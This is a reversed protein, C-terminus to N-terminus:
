KFKKVVEDEVDVTGWLYSRGRFVQGSSNRSVSNSGILSFPLKSNIHADSFQFHHIKNQKLQTKIKIIIMLSRTLSLEM